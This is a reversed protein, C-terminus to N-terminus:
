DVLFSSHETHLPMFGSLTDGMLVHELIHLALMLTLKELLSVVTNSVNNWHKHQQKDDETDDANLAFLANQFYTM